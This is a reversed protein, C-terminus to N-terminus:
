DDDSALRSTSTKRWSVRQRAGPGVAQDRDASEFEWVDPWFRPNRLFRIVPPPEDASLTVTIRGDQEALRYGTLLSRELFGRGEASGLWEVFREHEAEAGDRIRGTWTRDM